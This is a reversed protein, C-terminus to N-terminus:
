WPKLKWGLVLGIGFAWLALSLPKARAYSELSDLVSTITSEAWNERDVGAASMMNEPYKVDYATSM